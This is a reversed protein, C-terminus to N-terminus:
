WVSVSYCNYICYHDIGTSNDEIQTFTGISSSISVVSGRQFALVVTNGITTNSTLITGSSGSAIGAAESWQVFSIAM